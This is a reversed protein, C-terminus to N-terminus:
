PIPENAVGPLTREANTEAATLRQHEAREAQALEPKGLKEYVRALQFHAAAHKPNLEIGRVLEAAADEWRRNKALLVGLEFHSEWYADNLQISRRLEAEIEAPDGGAASLAKAHLCVPLCNRPAAKEWAAYAAIIQGLRDGAQDLLRALFVYPQEVSPDIRIVRLFADISDAFRRQGYAAVGYALAIQASNPFRSRGQGLTALAAAFDGRRLEMQGLEALYGEQQPDRKVAERLQQLAEDPQNAAAYAESLLHHLAATDTRELATRAWPIAQAADGARLSLEAARAAAQPDAARSSAFQREAEAAKSFEGTESYYLALAHEVPPNEAALGTARLAAEEALKPEKARLYAQALAAWVLGNTPQLHSADELSRRAAVLDNGGLAVLGRRFEAEFSEQAALAAAWISLLFAFRRKV